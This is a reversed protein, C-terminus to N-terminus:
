IRCEILNNFKFIKLFTNSVINTLINLFKNIM